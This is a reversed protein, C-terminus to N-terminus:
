DAKNVQRECSIEIIIQFQTQRITVSHECFPHETQVQALMREVAHGVVLPNSKGDSWVDKYSIVGRYIM